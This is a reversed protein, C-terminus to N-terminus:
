EKDHSNVGVLSGVKKTADMATKVGYAAAGLVFTTLTFGDLQEVQDHALEIGLEGEVGNTVIDGIHETHLSYTVVDGDPLSDVTRVVRVDQVTKNRRLQVFEYESAVGETNFLEEVYTSSKLFDLGLKDTLSEDPDSLHFTRLHIMDTSGSSWGVMDTLFRLAEQAQDFSFEGEEAREILSDVYKNADTDVPAVELKMALHDPGGFEKLLESKEAENLQKIM